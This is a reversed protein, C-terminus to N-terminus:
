TSSSFPRRKSEITRIGRQHRLLKSFTAFQRGTCGHDWCQPKPRRQVVRVHGQNYNQHSADSNTMVSPISYMMAPSHSIPGFSSEGQTFPLSALGYSSDSGQSGARRMRASLKSDRLAQERQRRLERQEASMRPPSSSAGFPPPFLYDIGQSREWLDLWDFLNLEQEHRIQVDQSSKRQKARSARDEGGAKKTVGASCNLGMEDCRNCKQSPWVRGDPSCKACKNSM